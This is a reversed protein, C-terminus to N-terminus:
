VPSQGTGAYSPLSSSIVNTLGKAYEESNGQFFDIQIPPSGRLIVTHWLKGDTKKLLPPIPSMPVTITPIM